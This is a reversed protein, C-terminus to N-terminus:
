VGMSATPSGPSSESTTLALYKMRSSNRTLREDRRLSYILSHSVTAERRILLPDACSGSVAFVVTVRVKSTCDIGFVNASDEVVTPVDNLSHM